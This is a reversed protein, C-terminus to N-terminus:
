LNADIIGPYDMVTSEFEFQENRDRFLGLESVLFRKIELLRGHEVDTLEDMRSIDLRYGNDKDGYKLMTDFVTQIDEGYNPESVAMKVKHDFWERRPNPIEQNLYEEFERRREDDDFFNMVDNILSEIEGAPRRNRTSVEEESIQLGFTDTLFEQSEMQEFLDPYAHRMQRREEPLLTVMQSVYNRTPSLAVLAEFLQSLHEKFEDETIASYETDAQGETDSMNLALLLRM